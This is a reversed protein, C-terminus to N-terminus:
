NDETILPQTIDFSDEPCPLFEKWEEEEKEFPFCEKCSLAELDNPHSDYCVATTNLEPVLDRM